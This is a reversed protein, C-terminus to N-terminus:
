EAKQMEGKGRVGRTPTEQLDRRKVTLRLPHGGNL